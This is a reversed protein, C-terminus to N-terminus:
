RLLEERLLFDLLVEAAIRHGLASPHGDNRGLALPSGFYSAIRHEELYKLFAEGVWLVPFGLQESFQLARRKFGDKKPALLIVVVQFHHVKSLHRLERMAAAFADWGVLDAYEPPVTALSGEQTSTLGFHELERILPGQRGLRRDIFDGLFSRDLALVSVKQRIFNPLELDNGVIELIVLNPRYRLGKGKLTEIEMVTNYGPVATNVVQTTRAPFVANLRKELVTLYNQDNAVGQGFMFSDGIGVIQFGTEEAAPPLDTGRFGQANTTVKAGEYTVALGPKLEYIIRPNAALRIMHGLRAPADDPPELGPDLTKDLIGRNELHAHIRLGTELVLATLVLSGLALLANILYQKGRM